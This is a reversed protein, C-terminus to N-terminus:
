GPCDSGSNKPEVRGSASVIAQGSYPASGAPQATSRNPFPCLGAM